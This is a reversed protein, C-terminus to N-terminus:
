AAEHLLARWADIERDADEHQRQADSIAASTLVLLEYEHFTLGTASPHPGPDHKSNFNASM